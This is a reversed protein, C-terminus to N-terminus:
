KKITMFDVNHSLKNKKLQARSNKIKIPYDVEEEQLRKRRLVFQSWIDYNIQFTFVMFMIFTIFFVSVYPFYVPKSYTLNERVIFYALLMLDFESLWSIMTCWWVIIDLNGDCTKNVNPLFIKAQLKIKFVYNIHIIQTSQDILYKDNIM